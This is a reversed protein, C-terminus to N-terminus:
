SGISSISSISTSSASVGSATSIVSSLRLMISSLVIASSLLSAASFISCISSISSSSDKYFTNSPLLSHFQFVPQTFVRHKNNCCYTYYTYSNYCSKCCMYFKLPILVSNKIHTRCLLIRIYLKNKVLNIKLIISIILLNNLFDKLCHIGRRVM